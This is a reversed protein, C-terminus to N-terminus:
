DPPEFAALPLRREAAAAPPPVAYSGDRVALFSHFARTYLKTADTDRTRAAQILLDRLRGISFDYTGAHMADTALQFFSLGPDYLRLAREVEPRAM